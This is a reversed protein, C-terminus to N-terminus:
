LFTPTHLRFDWANILLSSSLSLSPSRFSYKSLVATQPLIFTQDPDTTAHWLGGIYSAREFLTADFGTELLNKLAALGLDGAGIVCVKKGPGGSM